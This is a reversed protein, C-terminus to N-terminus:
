ASRIDNWSKELTMFLFYSRREYGALLILLYLFEFPYPRRPSPITGWCTSRATAPRTLMVAVVHLEARAWRGREAAISPDTPEREPIAFGSDALRKVLDPQRALIV